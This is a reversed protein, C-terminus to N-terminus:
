GNKAVQVTMATGLRPHRMAPPLNAAIESLLAPSDRGEYNMYRLRAPSWRGDVLTTRWLSEGGPEFIVWEDRHTIRLGQSTYEMSMVAEPPWTPFGPYRVWSWLGRGWAIQAWTIGGDQTHLITAISPEGNPGPPDRRGSYALFAETDSLTLQATLRPALLAIGSGRQRAPTDVRPLRLHRRALHVYAASLLTGVIIGFIILLRDAHDRGAALQWIAFANMLGTAIVGFLGALV